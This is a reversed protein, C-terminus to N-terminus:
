ASEGAATGALTELRVPSVKDPNNSSGSGVSWKGDSGQVLQPVADWRASHLSCSASYRARAWSTRFLSFARLAAGADAYRAALAYDPAHHLFGANLTLFGPQGGSVRVLVVFPPDATVNTEPLHQAEGLAQPHASMTQAPLGTWVTIM